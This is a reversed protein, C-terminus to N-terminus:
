PRVFLQAGWCSRIWAFSDYLAYRDHFAGLLNSEIVPFACLATSLRFMIESVVHVADKDENQRSRLDGLAQLAGFLLKKFPNACVRRLLDECAEPRFGPNSVIAILNSCLEETKKTITTAWKGKGACIRWNGLEQESAVKLLVMQSSPKVFESWETIPLKRNMPLTPIGDLGGGV